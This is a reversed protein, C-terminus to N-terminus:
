LVILDGVQFNHRSTEGLIQWYNSPPIGYGPRMIAINNENFREGASIKEKAVLSKRIVRKNELEITSPEKVKKGYVQETLRINKVMAELEDPEISAKHDPGDLNRSLTFHKEIVCAGHAVAIIPVIIGETHDSYGIPLNFTEAMLVMAALNVHALPAPYETTCHLLTVRKKLILQGEKSLYAKRFNEECPLLESDGLLGFAIVALADSIEELTSMGTSVILSCGTKSHALLSPLNTIEGSPIKLRKLQMIETLFSLSENDFATSLYEIGKSDCYNKLELHEEFSLELRRLMEQQSEIKQTNKAQYSAQTAEPTVLQDTKYTQFKVIDVGATVAVDVLQKAMALDGNHNVGAEAIILSRSM